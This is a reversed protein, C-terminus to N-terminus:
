GVESKEVEPQAAEIKSRPSFGRPAAITSIAHKFILQDSGNMDLLVSFKDFGRIRGQLKLGGLLYITVVSKEKRLANIFEDQVGSVPEKEM